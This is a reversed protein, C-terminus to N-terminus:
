FLTVVYRGADTAVFKNGSRRLLGVDILSECVPEILGSHRGEVVAKLNARQAITLCSYADNLRASTAKDM